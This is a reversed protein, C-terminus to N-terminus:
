EGIKLRLYDRLLGLLDRTLFLPPRRVRAGQPTVEPTEVVSTSWAGALQERAIVDPTFYSM